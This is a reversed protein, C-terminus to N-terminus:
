PQVENIALLKFTIANADSVTFDILNREFVTGVMRLDLTLDTKGIQEMVAAVVAPMAVKTRVDYQEELLKEVAGNTTIAEAYGLNYAERVAAQLVRKNQSHLKELDPLTVANTYTIALRTKEVISDQTQAPKRTAVHVPQAEFEAKNLLAAINALGSVSHKHKKEM